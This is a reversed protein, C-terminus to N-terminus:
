DKKYNDKFRIKFEKNASIITEFLNAKYIKADLIVATIESVYGTKSIQQIESLILAADQIETYKVDEIGLVHFTVKNTKVLRM